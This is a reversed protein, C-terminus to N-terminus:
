SEKRSDMFELLSDIEEDPLGDTPDGTEFRIIALKIVEQVEDLTREDADNFTPINHCGPYREKIIDLVVAAAQEQAETLGHKKSDCYGFLAGEMCVFVNGDRDRYSWEGKTWGKNIRKLATRLVKIPANAKSM